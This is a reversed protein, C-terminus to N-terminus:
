RPNVPLHVAVFGPDEFHVRQGPTQTRRPLPFPERDVAADVPQDAGRRSAAHMSVPFLHTDGLSANEDVRLLEHPVLAGVPAGEDEIGVQTTELSVHELESGLILCRGPSEDRIDAGAQGNIWGGLIGGKQRAQALTQGHAHKEQRFAPLYFFPEGGGGRFEGIM